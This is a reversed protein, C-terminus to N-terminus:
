GRAMTERTIINGASDTMAAEQNAYSAESLEWTPGTAIMSIHPLDSNEFEEVIPKRIPFYSTVSKLQLPIILPEQPDLPDDIIVTHTESDSKYALFKLLKNIKVGIVRSQMPCMLHNWLAKHYIVQHYELICVQGTVPHDYVVAGSIIPCQQSGLSPNYGVMDVPQEYDHFPLCERGLVTTDAHNDIEM